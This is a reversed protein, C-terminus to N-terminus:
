VVLSILVRQVLSALLLVIFPSFDLGGVPPVFRELPRMFPDTASQVIRAARGMLSDYDRPRIWSFLIRLLILVYFITFAANIIQVLM